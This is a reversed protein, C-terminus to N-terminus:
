VSLKYSSFSQGGDAYMLVSSSAAQTTHEVIMILWASLCEAIQLLVSHCLLACLLYTDALATCLM